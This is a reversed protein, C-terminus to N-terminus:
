KGSLNAMLNPNAAIRVQLSVRFLRRQMEELHSCTPHEETWRECTCTKEILDVVHHGERNSPVLFTGIDYPQIGKVPRLAM